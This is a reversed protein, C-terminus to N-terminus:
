PVTARLHEAKSAQESCSLAGFFDGIYGIMARVRVSRLRANRLIDFTFEINDKSYDVIINQIKNYMKDYNNVIYFYIIKV